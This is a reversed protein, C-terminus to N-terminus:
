IFGKWCVSRICKTKEKSFHTAYMYDHICCFLKIEDNGTWCSRRGSNRTVTSVSPFQNSGAGTSNSHFGPKTTGGHFSDTVMSNNPYVLTLSLSIYSYVIDTVPAKHFRRERTVSCTTLELGPLTPHIHYFMNLKSPNRRPERPVCPEWWGPSDPFGPVYPKICFNHQFLNDSCRIITLLIINIKNYYQILM